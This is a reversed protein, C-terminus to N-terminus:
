VHRLLLLTLLVGMFMTRGCVGGRGDRSRSHMTSSSSGLECLVIAPWYRLLRRLLLTGLGM